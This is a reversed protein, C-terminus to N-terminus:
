ALQQDLALDMSPFVSAGLAILANTKEGGTAIGIANFKADVNAKRLLDVASRTSLVGTSSDEFVTVTVIKMALEDLPAVLLNEEVLMRGAELAEEAKAGLAVGIAALAHVPNPKCYADETRGHKQALWLTHGSGTLPLFELCAGRLALEAEPPYSDTSLALRPRSPRNTLVAARLSGDQWAQRLRDSSRPSLAPQDLEELLSPSAFDAAVNYHESFIRSGLSLHQFYRLVPSQIADRPHSLLIFLLTEIEQIRSKDNGSDRAQAIFHNLAAHSPTPAIPLERLTQALVSFSPLPHTFELSQIKRLMSSFDSPLRMAPNAHWAAFALATVCTASIDWECTMGRAEFADIDEDHLISDPYGMEAAFHGVTRKLSERYGGPIVLVGDLDFLWIKV